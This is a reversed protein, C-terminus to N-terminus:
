CVPRPGRPGSRWEHSDPIPEGPPLSDGLAQNAGQCGSGAADPRWPWRGGGPALLLFM